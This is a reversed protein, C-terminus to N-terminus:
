IIMPWIPSVRNIIIIHHDNLVIYEEIKDKCIEQVKEIFQSFILIYLHYVKKIGNKNLVKTNVKGIMMLIIINKKISDKLHNTLIIM